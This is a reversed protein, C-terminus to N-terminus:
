TVLSLKQLHAGLNMRVLVCIWKYPFMEKTIYNGTINKSLIITQSLIRYAWFDKLYAVQPMHAVNPIVATRLLSVDRM